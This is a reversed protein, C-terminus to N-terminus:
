EREEPIAWDRKIAGQNSWDWWLYDVKRLTLQAMYCGLWTHAIGDHGCAQTTHMISDHGCHQPAPSGAWLWTLSIGESGPIIGPIVGSLPFRSSWRIIRGVVAKKVNNIMYFLISMIFYEGSNLEWKRGIYLRMGFHIYWIYPFKRFKISLM